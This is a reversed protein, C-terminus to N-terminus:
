RKAHANASSAELVTLGVVVGCASAAAGLTIMLAMAALVWVAPPMPPRVYAPHLPAQPAHAPFHVPVYVRPYM